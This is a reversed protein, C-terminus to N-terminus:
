PTSRLSSMTASSRRAPPTPWRSSSRPTPDGSNAAARLAPLAERGLRELAKYAAVRDDFAEARLRGIWTVAEDVDASALAATLLLSAIV